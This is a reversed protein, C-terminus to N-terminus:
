ASSVPVKTAVDASPLCRSWPENMVSWLFTSPAQFICRSVHFLLMGCFYVPAAVMAEPSICPRSPGLAEGALDLDGGTQLLGMDQAQEVRAPYGRSRAIAARATIRNRLPLVAAM